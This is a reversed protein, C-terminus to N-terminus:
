ASVARQVRDDGVRDDEIPPAHHSGVDANAVPADDADAPRAVGVDGVADVCAEHDTRRRVDDGALPPDEGRAADVRVHVQQRRRLDV